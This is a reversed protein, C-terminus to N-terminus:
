NDESSLEEMDLCRLIDDCERDLATMELIVESYSGMTDVYCDKDVEEDYGEYCGEGYGEYSGGDYSEVCSGNYDQEGMDANNLITHQAKQLSDEAHLVGIHCNIPMLHGAVLGNVNDDIVSEIQEASHQLAFPQMTSPLCYDYNINNGLRYTNAVWASRYATM